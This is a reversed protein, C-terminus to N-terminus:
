EFHQLLKHNRTNLSAIMGVCSTILKSFPTNQPRLDAPYFIIEEIDQYGYVFYKKDARQPGRWQKWSCSGRESVVWPRRGRKVRCSPDDARSSQDLETCRRYQQHKYIKKCVQSIHYAKREPYGRSFFLNTEKQRTNIRQRVCVESLAPVLETGLSRRIAIRM